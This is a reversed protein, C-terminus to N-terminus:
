GGTLPIHAPHGDGHSQLGSGLHIGDPSGRLTVNRQETAVPVDQGILLKEYQQVHRLFLEFPTEVLVVEQEDLHSPLLRPTLAEDILFGGVLHVPAGCLYGSQYMPM